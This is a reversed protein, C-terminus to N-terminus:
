VDLASTTKETSSRGSFLLFFVEARGNIGQKTPTQGLHQQQWQRAPRLCRLCRSTTARERRSPSDQDSDRAAAIVTAECYNAASYSCNACSRRRTGCAVSFWQGRQIAATVVIAATSKTTLDYYHNTTM